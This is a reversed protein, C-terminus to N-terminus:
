LPLSYSHSSSNLRFSRDWNGLATRIVLVAGGPSLMLLEEPCHIRGADETRIYFIYLYFVRTQTKVRQINPLLFDEFGGM